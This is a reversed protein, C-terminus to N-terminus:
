SESRLLDNMRRTMQEFQYLPIQFRWDKLRRDVQEAEARTDAPSQGVDAPEGSAADAEGAGTEDPASQAPPSTDVSARFGVWAEDAREFGRAEIILGDFTRFETVVVEPENEDWPEVDDLNLDDLVNGIVNAVSDYLLERDAPVDAVSFNAQEPQAKSVRVTEGDPHTVLVERIREGDIALIPTDLWEAATRGLQPDRDVLYSQADDARRMYSQYDGTVNGVIVSVNPEVGLLTVTIGSANPDEIPEVGLRDYLEPNATKAELVRTEALSLLAHRIKRLDAPYRNRELVSWGGESRELTVLTEHGGETLEV